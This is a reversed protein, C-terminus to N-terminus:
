PAEIVVRMIQPTVEQAILKINEGFLGCLVTPNCYNWNDAGEQIWTPSTDTSNKAPVEIGIVANQKAVRKIESAVQKPELCHELSHSSIIINFMNKEFPINHMDGTVIDDDAVTSIDLGTVQLGPLHKFYRKLFAIEVSDRCGISLINWQDKQINESELVKKILLSVSAARAFSFEVRGPLLYNEAFLCFRRSPMRKISLQRSTAMQKMLEHKGEEDLYPSKTAPNKTSNVISDFETPSIKELEVNRSDTIKPDLLISIIKSTLSLIAVLPFDMGHLRFGRTVREGFTKINM